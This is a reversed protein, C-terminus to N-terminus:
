VLASEGERLLELSLVFPRTVFLVELGAVESARM